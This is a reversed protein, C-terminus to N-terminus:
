VNKIQIIIIKILLLISVKRKHGQILIVYYTIVSVNLAFRTKSIWDTNLWKIVQHFPSMQFIKTCLKGDIM